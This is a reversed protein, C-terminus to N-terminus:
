ERRCPFPIQHSWIQPRHGAGAAADRLPRPERGGPVARLAAGGLQMQPGSLPWRISGRTLIRNVIIYIIRSNSSRFRGNNRNRVVTNAPTHAHLRTGIRLIIRPVFPTNMKMKIQLINFANVMCPVVNTFSPTSVIVFSPSILAPNTNQRINNNIRIDLRNIYVVVGVLSVSPISFHMCKLPPTAIPIVIASRNTGINNPSNSRIM